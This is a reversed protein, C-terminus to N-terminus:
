QLINPGAQEMVAAPISLGAKKTEKMNIAIGSNPWEPILESFDRGEFIAAVMKSIQNGAGDASPYYSLATGWNKMVEINTLGILPKNTSGTLAEVFPQQAGMQDNPSLFLDVKPTLELVHKHALRAMRIHGGESPVFPVKRSLLKIGRFEELQLSKKLWRIYSASQPMDAYIYGISKVKPFVQKVFRLRSTVNVPYCVGTFNAKPPDIFNDIVGLGVPDTVGGFIFKFQSNQFAHEKMYRTAMTGGLYVGDYHTDKETMWVRKARGEANGISWYKIKLNKGQSYGRNALHKLMATKISAYPEGEQSDIILLKYTKGFVTAPFTTLLLSFFCALFLLAYPYKKIKLTHSSLRLM